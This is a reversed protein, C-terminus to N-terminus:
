NICNSGLLTAPILNIYMPLDRILNNCKFTCVKFWAICFFEAVSGFMAAKFSDISSHKQFPLLLQQALPRRKEINSSGMFNDALM